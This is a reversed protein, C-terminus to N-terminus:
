HFNFSIGVLPLPDSVPFLSPVHILRLELEIDLSPTRSVYASAAFGGYPAANLGDLPFVLTGFYGRVSFDKGALELGVDGYPLILYLGVEIFPGFGVSTGSEFARYHYNLTAIPAVARSTPVVGAMLRFQSRRWPEVQVSDSGSARASDPGSEQASALALPLTSLLLIGLLGKM